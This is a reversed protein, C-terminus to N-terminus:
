SRTRTARSWPGKRYLPLLPICGNADEGNTPVPSAQGQITPIMPEPPSSASAQPSDQQKAELMRAQDNRKWRKWAESFFLTVITLGSSTAFWTGLALGSWKHTQGPELDQFKVIDTSFVASVVTMPLYFIAIAQFLGMVVAEEHGQRTLALMVNNTQNQLLVGERSRATAVLNQALREISQLDAQCEGLEMLFNDILEEREVQWDNMSSEMAAEDKFQTGYFRGLSNLVQLNDQLRLICTDAEDIYKYLEQLDEDAVEPPTSDIYRDTLKLIRQGAEEVFCSYESVARDALKLHLQLSLDLGRPVTFHESREKQFRALPEHLHDDWLTNKTKIVTTPGEELIPILPSSVIWLSKGTELDFQHHIAAHPRIWEIRNDPDGPATKGRLQNRQVTKIIYSVHIHRGSRHLTNLSYKPKRIHSESRFGGRGLDSKGTRPVVFTIFNLFCSSVQHYTMIRTFMNKTMNLRRSTAKITELLIVRCVVDKRPWKPDQKSKPASFNEGLVERLSQEDKCVKKKKTNYTNGLDYDRFEVHIDEEDSHDNPKCFIENENKDLERKYHSSRNGYGDHLLTRPFDGHRECSLLFQKTQDM